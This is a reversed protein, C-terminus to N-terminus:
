VAFVELSDCSPLYLIDDEKNKNIFPDIEFPQSKYKKCGCCRLPKSNKGADTLCNYYHVCDPKRKYVRIRM